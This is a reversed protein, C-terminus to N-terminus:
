AEVRGVLFFKRLYNCVTLNGGMPVGGYSQYTSYPRQVNDGALALIPAVLVVGNLEKHTWLM